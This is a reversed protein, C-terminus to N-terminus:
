LTPSALTALEGEGKTDPNCDEDVGDPDAVEKYGPARRADFDDCDIADVGDGDLDRWVVALQATRAKIVWKGEMWLGIEAHPGVIHKKASLEGKMHSIARADVGLEDLTPLQARVEDDRWSLLKLAVPEASALKIVVSRDGAATGFGRGVLRIVSGAVVVSARLGPYTEQRVAEFSLPTAIEPANSKRARGPLAGVDPVSAFHSQAFAETSLGACVVIVAVWGRNLM